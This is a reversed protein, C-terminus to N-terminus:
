KKSIYFAEYNKNPLFDEFEKGDFGKIQFLKSVSELESSIAIQYLRTRSPTSGTFLIIADPFLRLFYSIIRFVTALVQNRDGNNSVINDTYTGDDLVDVLALQYYNGYNLKQFVVLKQIEKKGESKFSFSLNDESFSFKYFPENM